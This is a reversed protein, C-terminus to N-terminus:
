TAQYQEVKGREVDVGLGPAQPVAMMGDVIELPEALVDEQLLHYACQNPSALAPTAAALHLMAATAIGLCPGGGLLAQIGAADAVAACKRAPVLGGVRGPDIVVFPAAGCRVAALVDAPSGIARGVALPVGTQRRLAAMPYLQSGALPDLLFHLGQAEVATCLELASAPDYGAGADLQLQLRDGASARVAALTQADGEVRGCSPVTQTHFGQEAMERALHAVRDPLSGPLRAALPIRRRYRGGLLHCLPQGLVRGILDWSAMELACRVQPMSLVELALLEEVDFISRGTLVPLLADRRAALESARWGTRAEGWGEEGSECALRVLLRCVPLQQGTCEIQVVFFELDSIEM